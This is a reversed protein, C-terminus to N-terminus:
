LNDAGSTQDDPLPEAPDWRIEKKLREDSFWSVRGDVFAIVAGDNHRMAVLSLGGSPNSGLAKSDFVMAVLRPAAVQNVHYGHLFENYAYSRVSTDNQRTSPCCFVEPRRVYPLAADAWNAKLPMREDWDVSYMAIALGIQKVNSLCQAQQAKQRSQSVLPFLIAALVPVFLLWAGSIIVAALALGQGALRGGSRHISILAIIGLILGLLVGIVPLICVFGLVALVLSAVALGSTRAPESPGTTARPQPSASLSAGCGGCYFSTEPNDRGCTPCRM